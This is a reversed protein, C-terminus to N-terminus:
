YKQIYKYDYSIPNIYIIELIVFLNQYNQLPFLFYKTIFAGDDGWSAILGQKPIMKITM